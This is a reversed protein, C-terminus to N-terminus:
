ADIDKRFPKEYEPKVLKWSIEEFLGDKGDLKAFVMSMIPKDGSLEIAIDRRELDKVRDYAIEAADVIVQRSNQLDAITEQVWQYFEDPVGELITQLDTHNKLAEWINKSSVNTLIRHLRVYEDFKVKLRLGNHWRVVFGEANPQALTNLKDIPLNVVYKVKDPYDVEELDEAGTATNIATLYVLRYADGYDVVIRNQPYIIEFLYTYNPEIWYDGFDIIYKRLMQTGIRAQESDFSGRTAIAWRKGDHYMIGLSGDMKEAVNFAADPLEGQYEGYNFFKEFPRAKINGELDTILGRSMLTVEDWQKSFAAIPTYNWILLDAKPHERRTILKRDVYDNFKALDIQTRKM